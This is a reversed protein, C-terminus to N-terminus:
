AKFGREFHIPPFNHLFYVKTQLFNPYQKTRLFSVNNEGEDIGKNFPCVKFHGSCHGQELAGHVGGKSQARAALSVLLVGM